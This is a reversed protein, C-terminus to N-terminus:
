IADLQKAKATLVKDANPLEDDRITIHFYTGGASTAWIDYFTEVRGEKTPLNREVKKDVKYDRDKTM